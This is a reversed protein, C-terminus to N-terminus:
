CGNRANSCELRELISFLNMLEHTSLNELKYNKLATIKEPTTELIEAATTLSLRQTEILRVVKVALVSKLHLEDADPFGLDAFVNGTGVEVELRETCIQSIRDKEKQSRVPASSTERGAVTENRHRRKSM